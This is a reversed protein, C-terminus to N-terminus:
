YWFLFNHIDLQLRLFKRVHTIPIIDLGLYLPFLSVSSSCMQKGKEVNLKISKHM